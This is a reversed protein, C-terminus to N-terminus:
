LLSIFILHLLWRLTTAFHARLPHRLHFKERRRCRRFSFTQRAAACDLTENTSKHKANTAAIAIRLV